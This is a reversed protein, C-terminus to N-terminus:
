LYRSKLVQFGAREILVAIDEKDNQSQVHVLQQDLDVHVQGNPDVKRILKQISNACSGCTMGSVEYEYM